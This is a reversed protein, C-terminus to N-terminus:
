KVETASRLLGYFASSDSRQGSFSANLRGQGGSCYIEAVSSNIPLPRADAYSIIDLCMLEEQGLKLVQKSLVKAHSLYWGSIESSDSGVYISIESIPEEGRWYERFGVRAIGKGAIVWASSDSSTAVIWTLPIKLRYQGLRVTPGCFLHSVLGVTEPLFVFIVLVLASPMWLAARWIRRRRAHVIPESREALWEEAEARIRKDRTKHRFYFLSGLMLANGFVFAVVETNHIQFNTAVADAAYLFLILVLFYALVYGVGFAFSRVVKKM